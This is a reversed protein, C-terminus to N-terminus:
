HFDTFSDLYHTCALPRFVLLQTDRRELNLCFLNGQMLLVYLCTFVQLQITTPNNNNFFFCNLFLQSILLNSSESQLFPHQFGLHSSSVDEWSTGDGGTISTQSQQQQQQHHHNKSETTIKIGVKSFKFNLKRILIM